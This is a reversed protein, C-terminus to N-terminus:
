TLHVSSIIIHRRDDTVLKHSQADRQTCYSPRTARNQRRCSLSTLQLYTARKRHVLSLLAQNLERDFMRAGNAVNVPQQHRCRRRKVYSMPENIVNSMVAKTTGILELL